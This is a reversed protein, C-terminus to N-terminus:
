FNYCNIGFKGLKLNNIEKLKLKYFISKIGMKMKIGLSCGFRGFFRKSKFVGFFFVLVFGLIFVFELDRFEELVGVLGFGGRCDGFGVRVVRGVM